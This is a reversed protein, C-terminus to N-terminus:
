LARRVIGAEDRSSFKVKRASRHVESVESQSITLAGPSACLCHVLVLALLLGVGVGFILLPVVTLLVVCLFRFLVRWHRPGSLILNEEHFRISGTRVFGFGDAGFASGFTVSFTEVNIPARPLPILPRSTSTVPAPGGAIRICREALLQRVANLTQESFGRRRSESFMNRLTETPLHGLTQRYAALTPPNANM